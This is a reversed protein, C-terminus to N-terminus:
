SEPKTSDLIRGHNSFRRESGRQSDKRRFIPSASGNTTWTPPRAKGTSNEIMTFPNQFSGGTGNNSPRVYGWAFGVTNDCCNTNEVCTASATPKMAMSARHGLSEMSIRQDGPAERDVAAVAPGALTGLALCSLVFILLFKFSSM